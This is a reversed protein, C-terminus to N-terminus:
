TKPKLKPAHTPVPGSECFYQSFIESTPLPFGFENFTYRKGNFQYFEIKDSVSKVSKSKCDFDVRGLVRRVSTRDFGNPAKTFLEPPSGWPYEIRLLVKVGTERRAIEAVAWQVELGPYGWIPGSMERVAKWELKDRDKVKQSQATLFVTLLLILVKM